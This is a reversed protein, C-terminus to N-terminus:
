DHPDDFDVITGDVVLLTDFERCLEVLIGFDRRSRNLRSVDSIFIAGVKGESVLKLLRQWGIRNKTSSGSLGLDADIVEIRTDPWGWQVAHIRQDRQYDTSGTNKLVQGPTSQRLYIAALRGLHDPTIKSPRNGEM